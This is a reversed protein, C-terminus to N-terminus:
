MLDEIMKLFVRLIKRYVKTILAGVEKMKLGFRKIKWYVEKM